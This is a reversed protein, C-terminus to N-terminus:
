LFLCADGYSFFRYDRSVAHRYVSLARERGLLASVLVILTSKPLHFNTLLSTDMQPGDGPRLFLRTSRFAGDQPRGARHWSEVSRLSTTGVCVIRAGEAEATTIASATEPPVSYREAHMVHQDLEDVRMPAFTGAGVHLTVRALHIGLGRLHDLMLEDFHLGATPAAVAGEHAAYVTQYRRRDDAEPGAERTIYPPLPMEGWAEMLEAFPAGESQVLRAGDEKREGVILSPGSEGAGRRELTIVEGVKVKASPKVLCRWAGDGEPSLALLRVIGGTSRRGTLRAPLVRTDNMVLLDGSRLFGPLDTFTHDGLPGAKKKAVLLRSGTREAVPVQAILRDPLNFDYSSLLLDSSRRLM